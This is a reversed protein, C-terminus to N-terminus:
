SVIAPEMSAKPKERCTCDAWYDEELEVHPCSEMTSIRASHLHLALAVIGRRQARPLRVARRQNHNRALMTSRSEDHTDDECKDIAVEACLQHRQKQYVLSYELSMSPKTAGLPAKWM